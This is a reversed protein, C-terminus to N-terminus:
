AVTCDFMPIQWGGGAAFTIVVDADFSGGAPPLVPPLDIEFTDALNPGTINWAVYGPHLASAGLSRATRTRNSIVTATSDTVVASTPQNRSNLTGTVTTKTRALGLDGSCTFSRTGSPASLSRPGGTVACDFLPQQSIPMPYGLSVDNIAVDADVFGGGGPLVVPLALTISQLNSLAPEGTVDWDVFGTGPWHLTSAGLNVAAAALTSSVTVVGGVTEQVVVQSPVNAADIRATASVAAPQPLGPLAASCTLTRLSTAQAAQAQAVPVAGLLGALAVVTAARGIRSVRAARSVRASRSILSRSVSM